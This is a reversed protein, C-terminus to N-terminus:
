KKNKAIVSNKIDRVTRLHRIVDKRYQDPVEKLLELKEEKDKGGAVYAQWQGLCRDM